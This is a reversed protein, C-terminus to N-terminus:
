DDQPLSIVYRYGAESSGQISIQGGQVEALHCSLLLGLGERSSHDSESLQSLGEAASLPTTVSPLQSAAVSPYIEPSIEETETIKSSLLVPQLSGLDRGEINIQQLGDGLWPHSVWVTLNLKAISRAVHIRVLSGAEALQIVNFLLYYLM